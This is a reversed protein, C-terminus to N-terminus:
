FLLYTLMLVVLVDEEDIHGVEFSLRHTFTGESTGISPTFIQAFQAAFADVIDQSHSLDNQNVSMHAPIRTQTRTTNTFSWFSKVKNVIDGEIVHVDNEYAFKM